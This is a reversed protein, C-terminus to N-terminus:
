DFCWRLMTNLILTIKNSDDDLKFLEDYKKITDVIDNWFLANIFQM